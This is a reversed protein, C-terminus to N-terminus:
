GGLVNSVHLTDCYERVIQIKGGRIEFLFHYMNNYIKGNAMEGFSEAELAVRDGEATICKPTISVGKPFTAGLAKLLEIYEAKTKTGALPLLEPKGIVTWLASDALMAMAGEANGSSLNGIFGLVIKKNDEPSMLCRKQRSDM